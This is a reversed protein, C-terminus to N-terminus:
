QARLPAGLSQTVREAALRAHVGRGVLPDPPRIGVPPWAPAQQTMLYLYAAAGLAFGTGEILMFGINGWSILNRAGSASTPLAPLDGVIAVDRPLRATM